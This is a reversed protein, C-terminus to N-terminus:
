DIMEVLLLTVDDDFETNGSYKMITHIITEPLKEPNDGIKDYIIGAFEKEDLITVQDGTYHELLGDTFLLLRDGPHYEAQYVSFEPEEWVGLLPGSATLHKFQKEKNRYLMASPHGANAYMITRDVHNIVVYTATIFNGGLRGLLNRNMRTFFQGPKELVTQPFSSIITNAMVSILAASLGHGSVDIVLIGIKNEGADIFRYFDGGINSFPVYRSHIKIGSIVPAGQPLIKKMLQLASNQDDTTKKLEDFANETNYVVALRETVNATSSVDERSFVFGDTRDNVVFFGFIKEGMIIPACIMSSSEHAQIPQGVLRTDAHISKIRVARKERYSIGVVGAEPLVATEKVQEAIMGWTYIIQLKQGAQDFMLISGGAASLSEIITKLAWPALREFSWGNAVKKEIATLMSLEKIKVQLGEHLRANDIAVAAMNGLFEIYEMDHQEFHGGNKKNMVELTGILKEKLYLPICIISKTIFGSIKDWSSDFRHDEYADKILLSEGTEAVWGAIGEGKELRLYQKIMKGKDGIAVECYLHDNKEDLLFLSSAEAELLDRASIMILPLLHDIQLNSNLSQSIHLLSKLKAIESHLVTDSM